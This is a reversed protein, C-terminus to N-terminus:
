NLGKMRDALRSDALSILETIQNLKEDSNIAMGLNYNITIKHVNQNYQNVRDELQSVFDNIATFGGTEFIALFRNGGNRGVFCTTGACKTLINSFDKLLDNGAKRGFVTNVKPLDSIALMICSVNAPLNKDAYKEIITDCSFRNPISSLSDSYAAEYLSHYSLKIDSIMSFDLYIFIFSALLLIWVVFFLVTGPKSAFVFQKVEPQLLLFISLAALLGLITLHVIKYYNFKNM